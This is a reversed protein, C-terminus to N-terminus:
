IAQNQNLIECMFLTQTDAYELMFNRNRLDTYDMSIMNCALGNQDYGTWTILLYKDGDKDIGRERRLERIMYFKTQAVNNFEIRNERICNRIIMNNVKLDDWTSWNNDIMMRRSITNCSYLEYNQGIASLTILCLLITLLQKM